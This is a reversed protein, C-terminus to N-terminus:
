RAERVKPTLASENRRMHRRCLLLGAAVHKEVTSVAIGLENAIEKHSYGLVKRMLFVRRCQPPFTVIVKCFAALQKQEDVKDEVATDSSVPGLVSGESGGVDTMPIPASKHFKNSLRKLSLNRAITFLYAKPASVSRKREAAFARLFVEQLVDEIEHPQSFFGAVFGRLSHQCELFIESIGGVERGLDVPNGSEEKGLM